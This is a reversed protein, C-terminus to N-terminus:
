SGARRLVGQSADGHHVVFFFNKLEDYKEAPFSLGDFRLTRKIVLQHGDGSGSIEYSAYSLNAKRHSPAEEVTYGDPLQLTLEDRESFPYPFKFPYRRLDHKFVDKMATPFFYAPVLLRKGAVSAFNPVEVSFKATLPGDESDWGHSETMKIVAGNPFWSHIEEEFKESREAEDTELAELRHSLADQAELEVTLEGKLSGDASLEMRAARRMPSSAPPPTTIFGGGTQYNLATAASFQWPLMGFPCFRTGPDLVLDKGNLKVLVAVGDLQGLWLIGKSFSRQHRNSVGLLTADFGAARALSAFLADIQWHTGYGHELVKKADENPKLKERKEEKETREQEYSLNRIQQVRTYLKRLMKERDTEGGIAETAADRVASPKGMWKETAETIWKQWTDWFEFLSATERGGYYCMVTPQYDSKPPMYDEEAFATVDTLELEMLGDKGRHPMPAGAQNAYSCTVQSRRFARNWESAAIVNGMFPQFRFREKLTYLKGELPFEMVPEVEYRPLSVLYSYEVISGTTVSPLTFTMARLKLGRAKLITKEFPKDKFEVITRDPHITRANLAKLSEGPDLPIEVDAYERGADNMIKIRRYVSIFSENDNRFYSKYLELAPAGPNGPAGQIALDEATIPLWPEPSPGAAVAHASAILVAVLTLASLTRFWHM